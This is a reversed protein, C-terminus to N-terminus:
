NIIDSGLRLWNKFDKEFIKDSVAGEMFEVGM